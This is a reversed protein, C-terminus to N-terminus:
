INWVAQAVALLKLIEVKIRQRDVLFWETGGDALKRIVRQSKFYSHILREVYHPRRTQIVMAIFYKENNADQQQKVRREPTITTFGVKHLVIHRLKAKRSRHIDSLRNYVYVFGGKEEFGPRNMLLSQLLWQQQNGFSSGLTRRVFVMFAKDKLLNVKTKGDYLLTKVRNAGKSNRIFLLCGLADNVYTRHVESWCFVFKYKTKGCDVTIVKNEYHKVARKIGRIQKSIEPRWEFPKTAKTSSM